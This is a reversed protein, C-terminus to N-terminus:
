PPSSRTSPNASPPRPPLERHWIGTTGAEVGDCSACIGDVGLLEGCLPCMPPPAEPARRPRSQIARAARTTSWIVAIIGAAVLMGVPVAFGLRSRAQGDCAALQPLNRLAHNRVDNADDKAEGGLATNKVARDHALAALAKNMDTERRLAATRAAAGAGTEWRLAGGFGDCAYSGGVSMPWLVWMAAVVVGIVGATLALRRNVESVTALTPECTEAIEQTSRAAGEFSVATLARSNKL